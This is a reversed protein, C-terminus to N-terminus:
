RSSREPLLPSTPLSSSLSASAPLSRAAPASPVLARLLLALKRWSPVFARRTFVDYRNRRIAPLIAGYVRSMTRVLARSGYGQLMPIGREASAYLAHAREMQFEMFRAWRDSERQAPLSEPDLGFTELERTPLYLRGRQLDEGVDRLINTLQMAKGLDAAHRPADPHSYGLVPLLLHGVVGAVRYCYLDLEEWTTYRQGRADMEMGSILEQLPHEPVGFHLVTDQLAQTQPAADFRSPGWLASVETRARALQEVLRRPETGEVDVTDDLRRCFAYLAFAARKKAGFLFASAFYFSRAHHRTVEQAQAYGLALANQASM